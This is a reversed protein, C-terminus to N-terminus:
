SGSSPEHFFTDDNTFQALVVFRATLADGLDVCLRVFLEGLFSGAFVLGRSWEHASRVGCGACLSGLFGYAGSVALM